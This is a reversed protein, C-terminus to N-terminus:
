GHKLIRFFSEPEYDFADCMREIISARWERAGDAVIEMSEDFPYEGEPNLLELSQANMDDWTECLEIMAEAVAHVKKAFQFCNKEVAESLIVGELEADRTLGMRDILDIMEDVSMMEVATNIFQVLKEEKAKM